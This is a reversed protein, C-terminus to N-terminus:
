NHLKTPSRALGWGGITEPSQSKLLLVIDNYRHLEATFALLVPKPALPTATM